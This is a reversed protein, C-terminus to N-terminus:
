QPHITAKRCEALVTNMAAQGWDQWQQFTRNEDSTLHDPNPLSVKWDASDVLVAMARNLEEWRLDARAARTSLDSVAHIQHAILM